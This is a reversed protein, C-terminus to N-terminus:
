LTVCLQFAIEEPKKSVRKNRILIDNMLATFLSQGPIPISKGGGFIM